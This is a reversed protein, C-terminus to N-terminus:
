RPRTAPNYEFVLRINREFCAANAPLPLPSSKRVAASVSRRVVADDNCDAIEMGDIAGDVNQRILVNCAVAFDVLPLWNRTIAAHVERAYLQSEVASCSASQTDTPNSGCASLAMLAAFPPCILYSLSTRYRRKGAEPSPGRGNPRSSTVKIPM